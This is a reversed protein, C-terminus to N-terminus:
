VVSKRDRQWASFSTAVLMVACLALIYKVFKQINLELSALLETIEKGEVGAKQAADNLNKTYAAHHKGYHTEMTLADIHPELADFGYALEIQTYM